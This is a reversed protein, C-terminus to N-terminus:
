WLARRELSGVPAVLRSSVEAWAPDHSLSNRARSSRHVAAPRGAARFHKRLAPAQSPAEESWARARSTM